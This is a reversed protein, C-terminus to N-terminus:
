LLTYVMPVFFSEGALTRSVEVSPRGKIGKSGTYLNTLSLSTTM